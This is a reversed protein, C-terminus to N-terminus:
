FAGLAGENADNTSPLFVLDKVASSAEDILGGPAFESTFREWTVAAGKLFAVLATSLHPLTPILKQIAEFVEPNEWQLGDFSGAEYSADPGLLLSPDAIFKKIHNHVRKHLPGLDLM